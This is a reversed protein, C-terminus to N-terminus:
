DAIGDGCLLHRSGQGRAGSWELRQPLVVSGVGVWCGREGEMDM